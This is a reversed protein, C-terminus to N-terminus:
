PAEWSRELERRLAQVQESMLAVQEEIHVLRSIEENNIDETAANRVINVFWAAVAATITGLLAIGTIMLGVAIWRGIQSVPTFDGYGVSTMTVIAWWFSDGLTKITGNDLDKEIDYVLIASTSAITIAVAIVYSIAEGVALRSYSHGARRATTAVIAIIRLFLFPRLFPIAVVVLDLVHSKVFKVRDLSLYIRVGYDVFFVLWILFTFTELGSTERATLSYALPLTLLVLFILGLAVLPWDAVRQYKDLGGALRIRKASLM